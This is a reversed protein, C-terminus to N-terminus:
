GCQLVREMNKKHKKQKNKKNHLVCKKKSIKHQRDMALNMVYLKLYYNRARVIDGHEIEVEELKLDIEEKDNTYSCM